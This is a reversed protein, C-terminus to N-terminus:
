NRWGRRFEKDFAADDEQTSVPPTPLAEYLQGACWGLFALTMIPLQSWFLGGLLANLEHVVYMAAIALPTLWTSVHWSNKITFLVVLILTMLLSAILLLIEFAQGQAFSPLMENLQPLSNQSYDFVLTSITPSAATTLALIAFIQQPALDNASPKSRMLFVSTGFSVVCLAISFIAINRSMAGSAFFEMGGPASLAFGYLNSLALLGWFGKGPIVHNLCHALFFLIATAAMGTIVGSWLQPQTVEAQSFMQPVSQLLGVWMWGSLGLALVLVIPNFPDAVPMMTRNQPKLLHTVTAYIQLFAWASLWGTNGVTFVSLRLYQEQDFQSAPWPMFGLAPICYGIVLATAVIPLTTIITNRTASEAL